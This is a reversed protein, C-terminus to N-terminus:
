GRSASEMTSMSTSPVAASTACSWRDNLLHQALLGGLDPDGLVLLVAGRQPVASEIGGVRHHLAALSEEDAVDGHGTIPDGLHLFGDLGGGCAMGIPQQEDRHAAVGAVAVQVGGREEVLVVWQRRGCQFRRVVLDDFSSQTNPPVMVPSCPTPVSFIWNM